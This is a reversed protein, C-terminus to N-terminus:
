IGKFTGNNSLLVYIFILWQNVIVVFKVRDLLVRFIILTYIECYATILKM